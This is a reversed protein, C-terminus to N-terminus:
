IGLERALDKAFDGICIESGELTIYTEGGLNYFEFDNDRLVAILATELNRWTLPHTPKPM